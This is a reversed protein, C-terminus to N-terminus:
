EGRAYAELRKSDLLYHESKVHRLIGQRKIDAIIRSVSEVTLDVMAAMDKGALLEVTNDNCDETTCCLWRIMHCVRQKVSGSLLMMIYDDEEFLWTAWREMMQRYFRPKEEDLRQM